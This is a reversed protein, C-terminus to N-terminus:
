DEKNPRFFNLLGDVLQDFAGSPNTPFLTRAEELHNMLLAIRARKRATKNGNATAMAFIAPWMLMTRNVEASIAPVQLRM